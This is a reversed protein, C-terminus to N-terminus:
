DFTILGGSARTIDDTTLDERNTKDFLTCLIRGGKNSWLSDSTILIAIEWGPHHLHKSESLHLIDYKGKKIFQDEGWMKCDGFNYEFKTGYLNSKSMKIDKEINLTDSFFVGDDIDIIRKAQLSFGFFLTMFILVIRIKNNM